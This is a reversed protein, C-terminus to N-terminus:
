TSAQSGRVFDLCPIRSQAICQVSESYLYHYDKNNYDKTKKKLYTKRKLVVVVTFQKKLQKRNDDAHTVFM